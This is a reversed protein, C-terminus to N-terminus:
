PPSRILPWPPMSTRSIRSYRWKGTLQKAAHSPSFDSRMSAGSPKHVTLIPRLRTSPRQWSVAAAVTPWAPPPRVIDTQMLASSDGSRDNLHVSARVLEELKRALGDVRARQQAQRAEVLQDLRVRRGSALAPLCINGIRIAQGEGTTRLISLAEYLATDVAINNNSVLLVRQGSAVLHSIAAAIVFTKGTGPPGWVLQLGASCCASVARKQAERLVPWAHVDALDLGPQVPTLRREGFQRLLPNEQAAKLGNGLGELIRRTDARRICLSLRERPAAASARVRVQEDDVAVELVDFALAHEGSGYTLNGESIFELESASLRGQVEYWGAEDHAPEM